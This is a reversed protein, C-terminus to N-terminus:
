ITISDSPICPIQRGLPNFFISTVQGARRSCVSESGLPHKMAYNHCKM